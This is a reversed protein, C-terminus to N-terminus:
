SAVGTLRASDQWLREACAEDEAAASPAVRRCRVYYAGSEAALEAASALYLSCEAGQRASLMFLRGISALLARLPQPTDRFLQSSVFGPHLANATVGSGALRRALARVFLLNALKSREYAALFGAPRTQMLDGGAVRARRHAESAVVIVRAPASAILRPLLMTTLLFPALHNVALALEYGDASRAHAAPMVGANNILVELRPLAALEQALRRVQALHAFDAHVGRVEPNGTDRSLEECVARTREPERGHVLVVAGRAALARATELGIGHTAGTVVCVRGNISM